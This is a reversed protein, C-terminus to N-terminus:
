NTDTKTEDAAPAPFVPVRRLALRLERAFAARLEPRLFRGVRVCQGRGSIEVLSGQGAAPEVTLWDAAFDTRAVRSGICQEVQLSRGVLTLTERDAAHRAFVLLACGVALMEVGAFALVLTAGQVFFVTAIATSVACLVAYVLALQRPAISCNRLLRWQLARPAGPLDHLEIERGFTWPAPRPTGPPAPWPSPAFTATM